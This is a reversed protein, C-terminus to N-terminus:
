KTAPKSSTKATVVGLRTKSAVHDPFIELAAQYAGAAEDLLENAEYALGLTFNANISNPTCEALKRSEELIQQRQKGVPLERRALADQVQSVTLYGLPLVFLMWLVSHRM